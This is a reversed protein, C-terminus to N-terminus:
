DGRHRWYWVAGVVLALLLVLPVILGPIRAPNMPHGPRDLPPAPAHIAGHRSPARSLARTAM